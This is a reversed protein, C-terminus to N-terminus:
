LAGRTAFVGCAAAAGPKGAIFRRVAQEFCDPANLLVFHPARAAKVLAVPGAKRLAAVQAVAGEIPTKPDRTGQIVLTRPLVKPRGGFLADRKYLPLGPDVLLGPLGTTFWLGQEEAKVEAKSMGPRADNESVSIISVLPISVPAQPYRGFAGGIRVEAQKVADLAKTEGRPLEDILAPILSITEPFDLLGGFFRKPDGGTAAAVKPDQATIMRAYADTVAAGGDRLVRRGVQDAVQSRHSLDWATTTEPPVLSDLIVGALKPHDLTLTRLVLQTGYSVGYLYTPGPGRVQGMLGALDHAANTVSFARAYDPAANLGAWCSGWEAGELALGGPSGSAEEALCLRTSYGTGRHDPILLDLGPFSARLRAILPYFSAGSEGPGGAILWVRGKSVGQAPFKRVFLGIAGIREGVAPGPARVPADVITCLTGKLEPFSAADECPAFPRANAPGATAFLALVM